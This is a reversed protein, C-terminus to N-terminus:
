KRAYNSKRGNLPTKLVVFFNKIKENVSLEETIREVQFGLSILLERLIEASVNTNGKPWHEILRKGGKTDKNTLFKSNDALVKLTVGPKSTKSYIM